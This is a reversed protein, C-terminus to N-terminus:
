IINDVCGTAENAAEIANDMCEMAENMADTAEESNMGNPGAKQGEVMNDFAEEEESCIDELASKIEEGQEVWAEARAIWKRLENRRNNNM